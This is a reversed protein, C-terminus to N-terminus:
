SLVRYSNIGTTLRKNELVDLVRVIRNAGTQFILRDVDCFRFLILLLLIYKIYIGFRIVIECSPVSKLDHFRIM